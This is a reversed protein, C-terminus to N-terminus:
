SGIGHRDSEFEPDERSLKEVRLANEIASSPKLRIRWGFRGLRIPRDVRVCVSCRPLDEHAGSEESRTEIM